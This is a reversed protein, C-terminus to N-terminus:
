TVFVDRKEKKQKQKQFSFIELYSEERNQFSYWVSSFPFNLNRFLVNADEDDHSFLHFKTPIVKKLDWKWLSTWFLYFSANIKKLWANISKTVLSLLFFPPWKRHVTYTSIYRRWREMSKSSRKSRLLKCLFFLGSKAIKVENLYEQCTEWFPWELLKQCNRWFLTM